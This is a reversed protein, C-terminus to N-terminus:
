GQEDIDPLRAFEDGDTGDLRYRENRYEIRYPRGPLSELFRRLRTVYIQIDKKRDRSRNGWVADTINGVSAGESGAGILTELVTQLKRHLPLTQGGLLDMLSLRHPLGANGNEASGQDARHGGTEGYAGPAYPKGPAMACFGEKPVSEGPYRTVTPFRPLADGESTGRILACIREIRAPRNPYSAQGSIGDPINCATPVINGDPSQRCTIITLPSRSEWLHRAPVLGHRALFSEGVIVADFKRSHLVTHARSLTQAKTVRVGASKLSEGIRADMEPCSLYLVVSIDM